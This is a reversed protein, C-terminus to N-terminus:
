IRRSARAFSKRRDARKRDLAENGGFRREGRTRSRGDTAPQERRPDTPALGLQLEWDEQEELEEIEDIDHINIHVRPM